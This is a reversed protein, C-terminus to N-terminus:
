SLLDPTILTQTVTGSYEQKGPYKKDAKKGIRPDNIVNTTVDLNFEVITVTNNDIKVEGHKGTFHTATM